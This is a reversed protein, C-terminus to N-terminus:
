KPEFFVMIGVRELYNKIKESHECDVVDPSGETKKQQGDGVYKCEDNVQNIFKCFWEIVLKIDDNECCLHVRKLLPQLLSNWKEKFEAKKELEEYKKIWEVSPRGSLLIVLFAKGDPRFDLKKKTIGSLKSKSYDIEVLKINHTVNKNM